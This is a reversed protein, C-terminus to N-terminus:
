TFFTSRRPLCSCFTYTSNECSRRAASPMVGSAMASLRFLWFAIIGAPEISVRWSRTKTRTLPWNVFRSSMRLTGIAAPPRVILSPSM